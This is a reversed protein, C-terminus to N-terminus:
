RLAKYMCVQEGIINKKIIIFYRTNYIKIKGKAFDLKEQKTVMREIYLNELKEKAVKQTQSPEAKAIQTPSDKGFKFDNGLKKAYKLFSKTSVDVAYVKSDTPSFHYTEQYTKSNKILKM